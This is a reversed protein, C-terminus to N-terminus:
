TTILDRIINTVQGSSSYLSVLVSEETKEWTNLLTIKIRGNEETFRTTYGACALQAITEFLETM